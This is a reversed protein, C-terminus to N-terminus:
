VFGVRKRPKEEQNDTDESVIEETINLNLRFLCWDDVTIFGKDVLDAILRKVSRESKGLVDMLYGISIELADADESAMSMVIFYLLKFEEGSLSTFANNMYILYEEM